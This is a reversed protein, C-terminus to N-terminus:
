KILDMQKDLFYKSFYFTAKITPDSAISTGVPHTMAGGQLQRIVVIDLVYWCFIDIFM